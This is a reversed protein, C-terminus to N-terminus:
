VERGTSNGATIAQDAALHDRRADAVALAEIFRVLDPDLPLLRRPSTAGNDGLQSKSASAQDM